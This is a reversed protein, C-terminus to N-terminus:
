GKPRISEIGFVMVAGYKLLYSPFLDIRRSELIKRFFVQKTDRFMTKLKARIHQSGSSIVARYRSLWSAGPDVQRSELSNRPKM